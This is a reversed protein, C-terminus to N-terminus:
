CTLKVIIGHLCKKQGYPGVHGKTPEGCVTCHKLQSRQHNSDSAELLVTPACFDSGEAIKHYLLPIVFFSQTFSQHFMGVVLRRLAVNLASFM